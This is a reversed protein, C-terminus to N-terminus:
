NKIRIKFQSWYFDFTEEARGRNCKFIKQLLKIAYKRFNYYQAVTMTWNFYWRDDDIIDILKKGILSLQYELLHEAVNTRNVKKTEM